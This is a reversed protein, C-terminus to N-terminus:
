NSDANYSKRMNAAVISSAAVATNKFRKFSVIGTVGGSAMSTEFLSGSNM